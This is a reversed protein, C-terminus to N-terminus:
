ILLIRIERNKNFEGAKTLEAYVLDNVSVHNKYANTMRILAEISITFKCTRSSKAPIIATGWEDDSLTLRTKTLSCYLRYIRRGKTAAELACLAGVLLQDNIKFIIPQSKM